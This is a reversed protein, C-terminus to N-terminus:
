YQSAYEPWAKQAKFRHILHIGRTAAPMALLRSDKKTEALVFEAFVQPPTEAVRLPYMNSMRTRKQASLARLVPPFGHRWAWETWNDSRIVTKNVHYLMRLLDIRAERLLPNQDDGITFAPLIRKPIRNFQLLISPVFLVGPDVKAMARLEANTDMLLRLYAQLAQHRHQLLRLNREKHRILVRMTRMFKEMDIESSEANAYTPSTDAGGGEPSANASVAAAAKKADAAAAMGVTKVLFKCLPLVDDAKYPFRTRVATEVDMEAVSREEVESRYVDKVHQWREPEPLALWKKSAKRQFATAFRLFHTAPDRTARNMRTEVEHALGNLTVTLGDNSFTTTALLEAQVDVTAQRAKRKKAAGCLNRRTDSPATSGRKAPTVAALAATSCARAVGHPGSWAVFSSRRM